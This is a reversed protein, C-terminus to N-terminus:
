EMRRRKWVKIVASSDRGTGDEYCGTPCVMLIEASIRKLYWFKSNPHGTDPCRVLAKKCYHCASKTSSTSWCGYIAVEKCEPCEVDRGLTYYKKRFGCENCGWDDYFGSSDSLTVTNKKSWSM